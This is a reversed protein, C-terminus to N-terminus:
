PGAITAAIAATTTSVAEAPAGTASQMGDASTLGTDRASNSVSEGHDVEVSTGDATEGAVTAPGTRTAPARESVAPIVANTTSKPGLDIGGAAGAGIGAVWGPPYVQRAREHEVVAGLSQDAGPATTGVAAMHATDPHLTSVVTPLQADASNQRAREEEDAPPQQTDRPGAAQAVLKAAHQFLPLSLDQKRAYKALLEPDLLGGGMRQTVSLMREQTGTDIEALKALEAGLESRLSSNEEELEKM